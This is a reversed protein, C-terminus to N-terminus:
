KLERVCIVRMLFEARRLDIRPVEENMSTSAIEAHAGLGARQNGQTRIVKLIGM